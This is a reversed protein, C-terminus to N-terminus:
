RPPTGAPPIGIIRQAISSNAIAVFRPGTAPLLIRLAARGFPGLLWGPAAVITALIGIGSIVSVAILQVSHPLEWPSLMRDCIEISLGTVAALPFARVFVRLVDRWRMGVLKLALSLMLGYSLVIAIAVGTASGPLGRSAGISAGAVVLSAYIAQRWSRRYVAGTARALSDCIKQSARMVSVCALIQFPLVISAWKTGLLTLIAPEALMVMAVSLPGVAMWMLALGAEFARRLRERDNQARALAPFMVQDIVDGLLAGPVIALQYAYNYFGVGAQGLKRGVAWIDGNNAFYNAIKGLIFGAGLSGVERITQFDAWGMAFPRRSLLLVCILFAEAVYGWVISWAGFGSAALGISFTAYGLGYALVSARAVVEFRLDRQLLAAPIAALSQLPIMLCAGRFVDALGDMGFTLDAIPDAFALAFVLVSVALATNMAFVAHVHRAEVRALQVLVPGVGTRVVIQLFGTIFMAASALGIESPDLLRGLASIVIIRLVSTAGNGTLLWAAAAVSRQALGREDDSPRIPEDSV